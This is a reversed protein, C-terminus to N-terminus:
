AKKCLLADLSLPGPGAVFLYLFLFCYLVALEGGNSVPFFGRPFHMMFYAVAMEGSLVFAVPVTFLGLVLLLGGGLELCGAIWPLTAFSAPTGKGPMGGFFGLVKQLGHLSFTAAIVIRVLSRVYPQLSALRRM